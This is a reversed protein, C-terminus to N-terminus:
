GFFAKFEDYSVEGDGSVDTQALFKRVVEDVMEPEYCDAILKRIERRSLTGDGNRDYKKFLRLLDQSRKSKKAMGAMFERKSIRNDGNKDIGLFLKTLDRDSMNPEIRRMARKLESMTLEGDGDRDAKKWFDECQKPSMSSSSMRSM